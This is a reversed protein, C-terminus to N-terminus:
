AAVEVPPADDLLDLVAEEVIGHILPATGAAAPLAGGGVGVLTDHITQGALYRDVVRPDVYSSRCVAPTNGMYHAVEKMARTVARKRGGPSSADTSMGLAVAALVTASWTRFDKATFDGGTADKIYANIDDSRVDVWQRGRRWALLEPQGGRRRKMAAVLEYVDPDVVSQIRRKGSKGVYDFTVMFRPGLRVHRKQM